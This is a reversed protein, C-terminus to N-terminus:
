EVIEGGTFIIVDSENSEEIVEEVQQMGDVEGDMVLVESARVVLEADSGVDTNAREDRLSSKRLSSLQVVLHYPETDSGYWDTEQTNAVEKEKGRVVVVDGIDVEVAAKSLLDRNFMIFEGPTSQDFGWQILQKESPQPDYYGVVEVPEPTFCRPGTYDGRVADFKTAVKDLKFLDFCANSLKFNEASLKRPLCGFDNFLAAKSAM